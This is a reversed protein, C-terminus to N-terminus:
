SLYSTIAEEGEVYEIISGNSFHILTPGAIALEDINTAGSNSTESEKSKNIADGMNVYYIPYHSANNKYSSILNQYTSSTEEDNDDYYLVVYDEDKMSFSRGIVISSYNFTSSEKKDDSKETHNNTIYVTLLYFLAFIVLIVIAIILKDTINTDFSDTTQVYGRNQKNRKGKNRKAM